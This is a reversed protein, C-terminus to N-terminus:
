AYASKLDIEMKDSIDFKDNYGLLTKM